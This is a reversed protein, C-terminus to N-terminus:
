KQMEGLGRNSYVNGCHTEAPNCGDSLLGFGNKGYCKNQTMSSERGRKKREIRDVCDSVSV